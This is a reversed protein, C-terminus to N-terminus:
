VPRTSSTNGSSSLRGAVAGLFLLDRVPRLITVNMADARARTRTAAPPKTTKRLWFTDPLMVCSSRRGRAAADAVRAAWAADAGTDLLARELVAHDLYPRLSAPGLDYSADSERVFMASREAETHLAVVEIRHGGPGAQANIDRVAHVLRMAAEGRNVIAIRQFM